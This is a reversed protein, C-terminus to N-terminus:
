RAYDLINLPVDWVQVTHGCAAIVSKGDPSFAISHIPEGSARLRTAERYTGADWLRLQGGVDGTALLRGDPSFALARVDRTHGTLAALRQGSSVDWLSVEGTWRGTALVKGDPSFVQRWFAGDTSPATQITRGERGTIPDFFTVASENEASLLKGDPSFAVSAYRGRKEWLPESKLGTADWVRLGADFSVTALLRGDPSLALGNTDPEKVDLLREKGTAVDRIKIQCHQASCGFNRGGTALTKADPTFVANGTSSISERVRGEGDTLRSRIKADRTGADVGLEAGSCADYRTVSEDGRVVLFSKGDPSFMVTVARTEPGRSRITCKWSAVDWFCVTGKDDASALQGGDPSFAVYQVLVRHGELPSLMREAVVDWRLISAACDESRDTATAAVVMRGDPSQALQYFDRGGRLASRLKGTSLDWFQLDGRGDGTLLSKGDSGLAMWPCNEFQVTATCRGSAVNWLRVTKDMSASALTKGDRSFLVQHPTDTHGTFLSHQKRAAVDWLRVSKMKDSDNGVSALFRGDPSFAVSLVVGTHHQPLVIRRDTALHLLVVKYLKRRELAAVYPVTPPPNPQVNRIEVGDHGFALYEGDPSFAAGHLNSTDPFRHNAVVVGRNTDWIKVCKGAVTALRKGDPSYALGWVSEVHGEGLVLRPKPSTDAPIPAADMSIGLMLMSLAALQTRQLM